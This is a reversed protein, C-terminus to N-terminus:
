NRTTTAVPRTTADPHLALRGSRALADARDRPLAATEPELTRAYWRIGEEDYGPVFWLRVPRRTLEVHM